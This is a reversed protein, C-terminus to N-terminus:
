IKFTEERTINIKKGDKIIVSVKQYQKKEIAEKIDKDSFNGINTSKARITNVAGDKKTITIKEFEKNNIIDIIKKEKPLVEVLDYIQSDEDYNVKISLVRAIKRVYNYFPLVIISTLEEDSFFDIISLAEQRYLLVDSDQNIIMVFREGFICRVFFYELLLFPLKTDEIDKQSLRYEEKEIIEKPVLEIYYNSIKNLISRIYDTSFGNKRLGSIIYLKLLDILSYKRWGAKNDIREGSILDKKDWDNIKKYTLKNVFLKSKKLTFRPKNLISQYRKVFLEYDEAICIDELNLQFITKSMEADIKKGM